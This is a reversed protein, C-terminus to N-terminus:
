ALQGCQVAIHHRRSRMLSFWVQSSLCHWLNNNFFCQPHDWLFHVAIPLLAMAAGFVQAWMLTRFHGSSNYDRNSSQELLDLRSAILTQMWFSAALYLLLRCCALGSYWIEGGFAPGPIVGYRCQWYGKVTSQENGTLGVHSSDLQSHCLWVGM